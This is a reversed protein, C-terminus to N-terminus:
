HATAGADGAVGSLFVDTATLPADPKYDPFLPDFKAGTQEVSTPAHLTIALESGNLIMLKGGIREDLGSEIQVQFKVEVTGGEKCEASIKGVKCSDLEINSDGGVGYDLALKYGAGKWDWRLPLLSADKLRPLHTIKEVGDLDPQEAEDSKAASKYTDELLGDRFMNLISNPADMTFNLDAAPVLQTGHKESRNNINTIRVPTFEPIEFKM